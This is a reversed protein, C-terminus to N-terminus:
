VLGFDRPYFLIMLWRDRYDALKVQRRTADSGSTCPLLFDPARASVVAGQTM